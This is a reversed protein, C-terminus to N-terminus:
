PMCNPKLKFFEKGQNRKGALLTFDETLNHSYFRLATSKMTTVTPYHNICICLLISNNQVPLKISRCTVTSLISFPSFKNGLIYCSINSQDSGSPYCLPFTITLSEEASFIYGPSKFSHKVCM